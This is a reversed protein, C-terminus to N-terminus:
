TYTLLVVGSTFSRSETLTLNAMSLGEPVLNRGRSTLVPYVTLRFEDVLGAHMLAHVVSISGTVGIEGGPLAKLRRVDEILPGTLVSSNEWAPDTMTSSVVHKHVRNLHDTFGTSDDTQLPWYSRFDEFTQRGLILDTEARTHGLLVELLEGDEESPAFWPDLFEIVGNASVNEAVILKRNDSM